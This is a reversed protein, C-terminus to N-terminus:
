CITTVLKRMQAIAANAHSSVSTWLDLHQAEAGEAAISRKVGYVTRMEREGGESIVNADIGSEEVEM